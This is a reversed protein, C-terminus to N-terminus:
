RRIAFNSAVFESIPTTTIKDVRSYFGSGQKLITLFISLDSEEGQAQIKVSGDPQNSVWGVIDHQQATSQTFWRFGVGQVMGYVSIEISKM